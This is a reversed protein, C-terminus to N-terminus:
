SIHYYAKIAKEIAATPLIRKLAVALRQTAMGATYRLRPSRTEVIRALLRALAAPDAGNQEDHEMVAIARHCRDRYAPNIAGEAAFSRAATFGTKFDGPEIMVVDIGFPAVEIRLAESLAELAYKSALYFGQFPITIRGGISSVNTILGGRQRRMVPLVARCVRHVGFFNTAFLAEAETASTDEISGALGSGANNVVVDIRQERHVVYEVADRVSAEDGVDMRILLPFAPQTDQDPPDAKRSTGYVRYGIASLHQACSRGFGSSAGTILVVKSM